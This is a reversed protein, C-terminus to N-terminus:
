EELVWKWVPKIKIIRKDVKLEDEEDMTLILGEKLNFKDMAERLGNIERERNEENLSHTVQIAITVKNKEKIILDCEKKDRFYYCDFDRQKLCIAVFNELINGSNESFKFGLNNPFGLDISYIKKPNQIQKKISYDFKSTTFFLFAKEFSCLIEGLVGLNKIGSIKSLTRLSIDTSINSLLYNSVEKIPKTLNPNFRRIIDRYIINEYLERLIIKDKELIMKPMGGSLLYENFHSKIKNQLNKDLNYDKIDVKKYILYEEFSFPFLSLSISRGTLITSIESSLLQSNSGTIIILFKEKIRDVWKEWNNVEQIEDLFFYVKKDYNNQELYDLIDQFNENEFSILREDNFNIYLFSKEKLKLNNFVLKLLSSKGCRRIGTIILPLKLKLKKIVEKTKKREILGNINLFDKQQEYLVEFLLNKKM